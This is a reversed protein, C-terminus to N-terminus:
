KPDTLCQWGDPVVLTSAKTPFRTALFSPNLEPVPVPLDNLPFLRPGRITSRIAFCSYGYRSFCDHLPAHPGELCEYLIYDIRADSLLTEAGAVVHSEWGEVDIKLLNIHTSPFLFDLTTCPVELAYESSSESLSALGHNHLFTSNWALQVTGSRSHLAFPFPFLDASSQERFRRVNKALRNYLRPHPEFSYVRGDPTRHALLSTLVGINAGVDIATMEPESLRWLIECVTSEYIGHLWISRGIHETPVVELSHEWPLTATELHPTSRIWERYFRRVLQSPRCIYHPQLLSRLFRPLRM